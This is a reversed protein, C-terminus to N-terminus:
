RLDPLKRAADMAAWACSEMRAYPGRAGGAGISFFYCQRGREVLVLSYGNLQRVWVGRARM